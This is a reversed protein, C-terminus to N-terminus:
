RGDAAPEADVVLIGFYVKDGMPVAAIGRVEARFRVRSGIPMAKWTPIVTKKPYVNFWAADPDMKFKLKTDHGSLITHKFEDSETPPTRVSQLEGEFTVSGQFHRMFPWEEVSVEQGKALFELSAKPFKSETKRAADIAQLFSAWSQRWEETRATVNQQATGSGTALGLLCLAIIGVGLRVRPSNCQSM